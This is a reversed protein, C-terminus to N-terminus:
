ITMEIKKFKAHEPIFQKIENSKLVEVKIIIRDDNAIKVDIVKCAGFIDHKLYDGIEINNTEIVVSNTLIFESDLLNETENPYSSLYDLVEIITKIVIRTPLGESEALIFFRELFKEHKKNFFNKDLYATEYFHIITKSLKKYDEKNLQKLIKLYKSRTKNLFQPIKYVEDSLHSKFYDYIKDLQGPTITFIIFINELGNILLDLNSFIKMRSKYSTSLEFFNECEDILILWGNYGISKFMQTIAKILDIIEDQVFKLSSINRAEPMNWRLIDKIRKVDIKECLIWRIVEDAADKSKSNNIINHYAKIGIKLKKEIHSTSYGFDCWNLLTQKKNTRLIEQLIREFGNISPFDPLEISDLIENLAKDMKNFLLTQDITVSSIVFNNKIALYKSFNLIHSKGMGFQGEIILNKGIGKSALEFGRKYFEIIEDRGVTLYNINLVPVIGYRMSNITKESYFKSINM